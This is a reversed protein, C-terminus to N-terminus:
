LPTMHRDSSSSIPIVPVNPVQPQAPPYIPPQPPVPGSQQNCQFHNRLQRPNMCMVDESPPAAAAGSPTTMYTILHRAADVISPISANHAPNQQRPRANRLHAGRDPVLHIPTERQNSLTRNLRSARD